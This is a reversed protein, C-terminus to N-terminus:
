QVRQYTTTCTAAPASMACVNDMLTLSRGDIRLITLNSTPPAAMRRGLYERPQWDHVLLRLRDPPYFEAAGARYTQYSYGERTTLSSTLAYQGRNLTLEFQVLGNQQPLRAYWVGDLHQAAAPAALAAGAALALGCTLTARTV